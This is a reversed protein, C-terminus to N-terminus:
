GLSYLMLGAFQSAFWGPRLVLWLGLAIEVLGEGLLAKPESLAGIPWLDSLSQGTTSTLSALTVVANAVLSLATAATIMGIFPILIMLCKRPGTPGSSNREALELAGLGAIRGAFVWLIVGFLMSIVPPGVEAAAIWLPHVVADPYGQTLLFSMGSLARPMGALNQIFIYLGLLRSGLAVIERGSM